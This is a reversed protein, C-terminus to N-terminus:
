TLRESAWSWDIREQELRIRDGLRDEVLDRYLDREADTLHTLDATSPRDDVGWRERHELLTPRDMLVSRTQPLWSRVRDLIAFGHTDLDGWYDVDVDALWPLRGIRDVDFGKGWLVLGGVPVPVSLYTIENEVVLAREPTIPLRALEETRVALESLSELLGIASDARLRVYEPKARLGLGAVFGPATSSVGLMAALVWRNREAFKTDVGPASIERLYRGSGRSSDLWTFAAVLPESDEALAIARLPNAVAWARMAPQESFATLIGDFRRADAEVELLACAQAFSSVVARAPVRNRGISRGGIGIWEVDYRTGARSGSALRAIWDRVARLDDGIESPRPGRVAVDIPAFDTGDAHARLLSGDDWRRRVKAAVDAPTTWPGNM